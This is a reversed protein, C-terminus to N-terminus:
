SRAAVPSWRYHAVIQEPKGPRPAIETLVMGQREYFERARANATNAWLTFGDPMRRIAEAFLTKGIGRGKWAPDLFLQDLKGPYLGLMGVVVDGATAVCLTWGKSLDEAIRARM